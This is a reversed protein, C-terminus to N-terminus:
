NSQPMSGHNMTGHGMGHGQMGGQPGMSGVGQVVVDIALNGAQEFTLTLPFSDGEALPAKLGILMIHFGGPQLSTTGGAPVEVAEVQRMRMVNGEMLHTHIEVRAAVDGAAGILRDDPGANRIAMFAAGNRAPGASARAWPQEVTLDGLRFDGASASSVAVATILVVVLCAIIYAPLRSYSRTM